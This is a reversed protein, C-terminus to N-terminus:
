LCTIDKGNKGNPTFVWGTNVICYSYNKPACKAMTKQIDEEFNETSFKSRPLTLWSVIIGTKYYSFIIDDM